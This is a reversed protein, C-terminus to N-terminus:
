VSFSLCYVDKLVARLFNLCAYLKLIVSCSLMRTLSEGEFIKM